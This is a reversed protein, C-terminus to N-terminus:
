VQAFIAIFILSTRRMRLKEATCDHLYEASTKKAVQFFDQKETYLMEITSAQTAPWVM